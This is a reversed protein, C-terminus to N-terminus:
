VAELCPGQTCDIKGDTIGVRQNTASDFQGPCTNSPVEANEFVEVICARHPHADTLFTGLLFVRGGDLRSLHYGVSFPRDTEPGDVREM